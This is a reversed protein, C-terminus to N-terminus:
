SAKTLPRASRRTHTGTQHVPGDSRRVYTGDANRALFGADVLADLV